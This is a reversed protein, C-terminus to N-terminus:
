LLTGCFRGCMFCKNSKLVINDKENYSSIKATSGKAASFESADIKISAGDYDEGNEVYEIYDTKSEEVIVTNNIDSASKEAFVSISFLTIILSIILLISSFKSIYKM